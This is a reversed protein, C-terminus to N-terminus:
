PKYAENAIMEDRLDELVKYIRNEESELNKVMTEGDYRLNKAFDDLGSGSNARILDVRKITTKIDDKVKSSKDILNRTQHSNLLEYAEEVLQQKEAQHQLIAKNVKADIAIMKEELDKKYASEKDM